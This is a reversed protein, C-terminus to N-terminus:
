LGLSKLRKAYKPDVLKGIDNTMKKRLHENLEDDSYRREPSYCQYVIGTSTFGEIGADGGVVAPVKQYHADQYRM